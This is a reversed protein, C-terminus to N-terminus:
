RAETVLARGWPVPGHRPPVVWLVPYGPAREPLPGFLDTLGIFLDPRLGARRVWEFVARHDTGGGGRARGARLWAELGDLGVVEHVAADAVVLRLEEAERAIGRLEAVQAALLADDISASTDLAVVVTGAREGVLTPVAFGLAAWRRDPRRADHEDRTRAACALRRLERRWDGRRPAAGFARLVEGPVHGARGRATAHDLAARVREALADHDADSLADFLHVDLGGGHDVAARGAVEVERPAPLGERGPWGAFREAEVWAALREHIAEAILADFRRDLLTGAPPRYLPRGSGPHPISAVIRNIALDSALNWLHPDRGRRRELSAQVTHGIEHALVFGLEDAELARTRDPNYRLERLCDTAALTPLAPDAVLRVELLLYGWFPHLEMMRLRESAVRRAEEDHAATM